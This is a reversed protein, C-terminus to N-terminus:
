KNYQRTLRSM